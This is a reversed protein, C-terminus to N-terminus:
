TRERDDRDLLGHAAPERCLDRRDGRALLRCLDRQAPRGVERFADPRRGFSACGLELSTSTLALEGGPTSRSASAAHAAASAGSRAGGNAPVKMVPPRDFM